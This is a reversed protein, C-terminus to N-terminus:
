LVLGILLVLGVGLAVFALVAVLFLIGMVFCARTSGREPGVTEPGETNSWRQM